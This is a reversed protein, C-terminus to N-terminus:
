EDATESVRPLLPLLDAAWWATPNRQIAEEIHDYPSSDPASFSVRYGTSIYECIFSFFPAQALDALRRPGSALKRHAGLFSLILPEEHPDPPLEGFIVVAGGQRLCQVFRRTNGQRDLVEGGNLYRDGNQKRRRYFRQISPHVRPDETINSTMALVPIGLRELLVVGLVCSSYHATVFVVRGHQEIANMVAELGVWEVPWQRLDSRALQCAELEELSQAVYRQCVARRLQSPDASPLLEKLADHTRQELEQDGLCFQRWDRGLRAYILGRWAALKRGLWRPLRAMLPLLHDYDFATWLHHVDIKRM